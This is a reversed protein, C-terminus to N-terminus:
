GLYKVKVEGWMELKKYIAAVGTQTNADAASSYVGDSVYKGHGDNINTQAWIYPSYEEPHHQLYGLGNFIEAQKLVQGLSWDKIRDLGDIHLADLAGERFTLFPGRNKPVITSKRGTGIILQGNGLYGRMDCSCEMNHIFGILEAPVGTIKEIERYEPMGKLVGRAAAEIIKEFGADFAVRKYLDEYWLISGRKHDTDGLSIGLASLTNKGVIGDAVLDMQNQFAIVAQETKPGFVGDSVVPFSKATLKDQVIVVLPDRSGLKLIM